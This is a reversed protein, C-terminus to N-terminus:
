LDVPLVADAGAGGVGGDRDAGRGGGVVDHALSGGADAVGLDAVPARDAAGAGVGVRGRVPRGDDLRQAAVEDQAADVALPDHGGAAEELVDERGVDLGVLDQGLDADRGRGRQGAAGVELELASGAVEGRDAHRRDDRETAVPADRRDADPQGRDGVRGERGVWASSATRPAWGPSSINRSAPM